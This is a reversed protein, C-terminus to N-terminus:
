ASMSATLPPRNSSEEVLDDLGISYPGVEKREIFSCHTFPAQSQQFSVMGCKVVEM